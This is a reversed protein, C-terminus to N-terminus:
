MMVEYKSRQQAKSWLSDYFLPSTESKIGIYFMRDLQNKILIESSYSSECGLCQVINKNGFESCGRKLRLNRLSQDLCPIYHTSNCEVCIQDDQMDFTTNRNTNDNAFSEFGVESHM